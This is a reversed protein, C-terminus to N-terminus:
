LFYGPCRWCSPCERGHRSRHPFAAGRKSHHGDRDTEVVRGLGARLNREALQAGVVLRGDAVLPPAGLTLVLDVEAVDELAELDALVAVHDDVVAVQVIERERGR